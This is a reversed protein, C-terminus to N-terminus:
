YGADYEDADDMAKRIDGALDDDTDSDNLIDYVADKSLDEGHGEIDFLVGSEDDERWSVDGFSSGYENLRTMEEKIIRRLQRKTIKM